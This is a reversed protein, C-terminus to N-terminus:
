GGDGTIIAPFCFLVNSVEYFVDSSESLGRFFSTMSVVAVCDIFEAMASVMRQSGEVNATKRRFGWSVADM